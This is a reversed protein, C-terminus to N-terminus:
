FGSDSKEFIADHEGPYSHQFWKGITHQCQEAPAAQLEQQASHRVTPKLYPSYAPSDVPGTRQCEIWVAFREIDSPEYFPVRLEFNLFLSREDPNASGALALGDDIVVTKAHIM